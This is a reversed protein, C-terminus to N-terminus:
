SESEDAFNPNTFAPVDVKDRATTTPLRVNLRVGRVKVFYVAMAILAILASAGVIGGIIQGALATAPPIPTKTSDGGDEGHQGHRCAFGRKQLCNNDNWRGDPYMEVCNEEAVEGPHFAENPEGDAWNVYGLGTKDTWAWGFNSDRSLGIWVNHKTFNLQRLFLTEARSHVSVLEAKGLQCLHQAEPWSYGEDGNYVAYCHRGFPKWYPSCKGNGPAPTPPPPESSIKCVYPKADDCRTDNWTGHYLSSHMSVCGEGPRFSPEGPGWQTFLVPWGDTWTYSASKRRLGIWADGRGQLVVGSVFAQDYSMDISALNGGQAACAQQAREWTEPREVVRYCNLKWSVYGERCPSETPPPPAVSSSKKRYCVFSRDESCAADNWRGSVLDSHTVSVCHEAGNHNNPEKDDWNTYLVRSGDTWAYLNEASLDSLGIWAPRELDKLYSSVFDNESQNDIVALSGGQGQCWSRAFTWNAQFDEKQGKFLFCKDKFRMWGSPCHGEWAPTPPAPTPGDGPRKKCVYGAGARGCNADNWGGQHRNMQACHEEGNANNPEGTAWHTYLLPSRDVWKFQGDTEGFHTLGIWASTVKGTGVMTNVYAQEKESLISVLKAKEQDCREWATHFDVIDTDNYYYCFRDHKRWGPNVGCDPAPVPPPPIPPLIPSTGKAIMCIWDQHADCNLDNWWSLTGNASSVMEVCNERGEHDNPEGPGWNTHSVPSGDTWTYGGATPNHSLGIWKSTGKTYLSLFEEEAQLNISVLRAGRSVCDEQAAGWSKRRSFDVNHFLRYCHRFHSKSTWSDSCGGAPPPTPPKTPPTIDPRPRECVFSFPELCSKDDWFGGIAGTTMAVCTGQGSDPQDRDWHTFTLPADNEWFYDVGGTPGGQARLGLWWFGTKGSLTVTFHAQEYIDGIHLLFAGQEKCFDKADSWSRATEELWYCAYGYADWGQPCGYVTPKVSPLPYHAKPAKCIYTNLETCAVDSWRGSEYLMEVCDERFGDHNNPQGPEWHTFSTMHGDSWTYFGVQLPDHLGTWVDGTAMYLYSELWSQETMSLISVLEAGLGRCAQRASVWTKQVSFPKYCFGGFEYWDPGSCRVEGDTFTYSGSYTGDFQRSTIGNRTSGPYFDQGPLKLLTTDGGVDDVVVGAHVAAACINSDERYVSTGYVRYSKKSCGAPCHVTMRDNAPNFNPRNACTVAYDPTCGLVEFRLGAQANHELPLVRIYQASVPTGLLQTDASNRDQSGPFFEGDATYAAWASGDLSHQIKFKTVWHDNDPCGQIVVGTVKRVQGLDAQIWSASDSISPRWCTSGHLRGKDPTSPGWSSSARLQSDSINGDEVGLGRLCVMQECSYTIRLYKSVQPCPDNDTHAYAFCFARKDCNKRMLPLVGDVQCKGGGSGDLLPCLDTSDRGYFASQINILSNQPCHLAMSSDQCALATMFGDHPPPPEPTNGRRKCIYGRNLECKDDNWKGGNIQMSLCDEGDANDPNGSSWHIYRFPSGDSWGWGGEVISDHGGMWMATGTPSLGVMGQLFAQEYPDTISVLDGGQNFCDARSEAWPRMSLYNFLYCYDNFPDPTWFGCKQNWGPGSTPPQPPGQGKPKKCVFEKASSCFDDSLTGPEPHNMGRVQVCDENNQWNDPQDPGWLLFDAPTGDSYVFLNEVNIDNLGLWAEGPLHATLFSLEAQDHLSALHGSQSACYSEAEQWHFTHETDFHYCFDKYLLYGPDCSFGPPQTPKVNQGGTMECMYALSKFCTTTEWMGAYNGTFIQGCDWVKDTNRPSGPGWNTLTLPSRDVWAWTGDTEKDSLGIWLDPIDIHHLDPLFGNIYYQEEQSNIIVLHASLDTCRTQAEYWTTLLATNSVLWYCSGAFSQWGAPCITNLARKCMYPREYRCVHARWEGFRSGKILAACTGAQLDIPSPQEPAWNTWTSPSADSWSFAVNGVEVQCSLKNCKLTSFGLWLDMPSLGLIGSVFEEEQTSSLSLLDGGEKLCDHRAALWSKTTESKLKYCYSGFDTWGNAVDCQVPPNPNTVKCIYKLATDCREDTWLGQSAGLVQGCDQGPDKGWNDPQGPVWYVLSEIFPSGDTWDWQGEMVRDNLGIWYSNGDLQSRVWQREQYTQISMLDGGLTLCSAHAQNWSKPEVSFYYCRGQYPRWGPECQSYACALLAYLSLIRLLM